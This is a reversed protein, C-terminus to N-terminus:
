VAVPAISIVAGCSEVDQFPGPRAREWDLPRGHFDCTLGAVEPSGVFPILSPDRVEFVLARASVALSGRVVAGNEVPGRSVSPTASHADRGTARRWLDFDVAVGQGALGDGAGYGEPLGLSALIGGRGHRDESTSVGFRHFTQGDWQWMTGNVFVNHDSENGSTGDPDHPFCIHGRYNDIFVNSIVRQERTTAWGIDGLRREMWRDSVTRMHVGFHSNAVLLNHAVTVGSADHTYIGEGNRTFGVVNHDVMCPGFGLEVMIGSHQNNLVTNRSVRSGYWVNDLWIGHADNDRVLNGEIVGDIFYHFKIGAEEIANFGMANNREVVNGTVRTGIHKWGMIGTEGNDSVINDRIVHRGVKEIPPTPDMGDTDRAGESGCDIGVSNAHRVTCREIVWHHGSRCSVAGAQPHGKVTWFSHASQNACHEFTIGRVHIHGLGRRIPAFLRDRVTIEIVSDGPQAIGVPLRLTVRCTAQDVCWSGPSQVVQERRDMQLMLRDGVFIQGLVKNGALARAPRIFVDSGGFASARFDAEFVAKGGSAPVWQPNWVDSGRVIVGVGVGSYVVPKGETGGVRPAVRERYVGPHILM